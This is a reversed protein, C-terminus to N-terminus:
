TVLTGAGRGTVRGGERLGMQHSHWLETSWREYVEQITVTVWEWMEFREWQLTKSVLSQMKNMMTCIKTMGLSFLCVDCDTNLLFWSMGTTYVLYKKKKKCHKTNHRAGVLYKNFIQQNIFRGQIQAWSNQEQTWTPFCTPQHSM